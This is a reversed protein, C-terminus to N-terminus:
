TFINKSIKIGKKKFNQFFTPKNETHFSGKVKFDDTLEEIKYTFINRLNINNDELQGVETIHTLKRTGDQLQQHQIILNLGQSIQKRIAWAPLNLGAYLAMTELRTLADTPDSAHIVSLSGRHGSNLAQLYDMAEQGRIEGLIIRTPRMRLSNRFLERPSIKGKGEINPPRTLLRIVHEQRLNLELADEITIIRETSDIYSSLVELTTTKGSGTAGSFMINVKAKICAVLFEAMAQNITGLRVLDEVKEISRLFKRITITTGDVSLPPLIVNVRSGDKLSFDVYPSSEDVRRGSPAVMKEVIYRLHASDDFKIDARIKKGKKEIYIKDPGNVMIETVEPNDMLKQIPGLGLFDNCLSNVVINKISSEVQIKKARELREFFVGARNVIFDKGINQNTGVLSIIDKRLAEKIDKKNM